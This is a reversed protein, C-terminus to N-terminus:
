WITIRIKYASKKDINEQYYKASTNIFCFKCKAAVQHKGKLQKYFESLEKEIHCKTCIKTIM